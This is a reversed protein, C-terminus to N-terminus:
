RRRKVKLYSLCLAKQVLSIVKKNIMKQSPISCQAIGFHLVFDKDVDNIYFSSVKKVGASGRKRVTGYFISQYFEASPQGELSNPGAIVATPEQYHGLERSELSPITSSIVCSRKLADQIDKWYVNVKQKGAISNEGECLLVLAEDSAREALVRYKRNLIKNTIVAIWTTEIKAGEISLSDTETWFVNTHVQSVKPAEDIVYYLQALTLITYQSSSSDASQRNSSIEKAAM